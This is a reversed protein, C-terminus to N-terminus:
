LLMKAFMINDFDNEKLYDLIESRYNRDHEVAKVFVQLLEIIAAESEQGSGIYKGVLYFKILSYRVVLLIYGDFEYDSESFPFLNNLIFNVLYNEIIYDYEKMCEENYRKYMSIIQSSNNVIDENSSINFGKLAKITLKRFRDSDTENIIDLEDIIKKLFSVQLAYNMYDIEYEEVIKDVNFTKILKLIDDVKVEQLEDLFRGLVYLRTSIDYNRNQIIKLSYNRIEKFYRISSNSFEESKTELYGALTYKDTKYSIEQLYIPDRASLIIRAAEPCGLDLSIEYFDDIRNVVRPYQSCVSGLYEHGYKKHINCYNCEDLFPCRKEKNLKIRGYDLDKNVYEKNNIIYKNFMSRYPEEKIKHYRRFTAQDVDIDWGICCNDECDGGICNFEEVYSPAYIKLKEM